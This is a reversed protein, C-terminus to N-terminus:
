SKLLIFKVFFLRTQSVVSFARSLGVCTTVAPGRAPRVQMVMGDGLPNALRFPGPAAHPAGVAIAVLALMVCASQFM